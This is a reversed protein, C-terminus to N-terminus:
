QYRYVSRLIFMAFRPNYIGRIAGQVLMDEQLTHLLEITHSFDDHNNKWDYLTRKGVGLYLALKQVTPLLDNAECTKIYQYALLFMRDSYKSPRGKKLKIM